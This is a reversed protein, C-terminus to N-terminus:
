KKERNMSELINTFRPRIQERDIIDIEDERFTKLLRMDNSTIGLILIERGIKLAAVGKRPGISQYSIINMLGYRNQRRKMLYGAGVILVIVFSLAFVMQLYSAIM